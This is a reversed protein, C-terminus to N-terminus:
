NQLIKEFEFIIDFDMPVWLWGTTPKDFFRHVNVRLSQLNKRTDLNLTYYDMGRCWECKDLTAPRTTRAAVRSYEVVDMEDAM